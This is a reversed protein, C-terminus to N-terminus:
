CNKELGWAENNRAILANVTPDRQGLSFDLLTVGM